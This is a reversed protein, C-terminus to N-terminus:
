EENELGGDLLGNSSGNQEATTNTATLEVTAAM